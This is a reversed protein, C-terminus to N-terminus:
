RIDKKKIKEKLINTETTKQAITSASESSRSRGKAESRREFTGRKAFYSWSSWHVNSWPLNSIKTLRWPQHKMKGHIQMFCFLEELKLRMMSVEIWDDTASNLYWKGLNIYWRLHDRLLGEDSELRLKVNDVGKIPFFWAICNCYGQLWYM